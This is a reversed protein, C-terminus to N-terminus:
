PAPVAPSRSKHFVCSSARFWKLTSHLSRLLEQAEEVRKIFEKNAKLEHVATWPLNQIADMITVLDGELGSKRRKVVTVPAVRLIASELDGDASLFHRQAVPDRLITRLKRLPEPPNSRYFCAYSDPEPSASDRGRPHRRSRRSPSPLHKRPPHFSRQRGPRRRSPRRLAPRAGEINNWWRRARHGPGSRSDPATARPSPRSAGPFPAITTAGRVGLM